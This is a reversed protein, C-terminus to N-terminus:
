SHKRNLPPIELHDYFYKNLLQSEAIEPKPHASFYIKIPGYTKIIHEYRLWNENSGEVAAYQKHRQKLTQNTKGIYIIESAGKLRCIEKSTAWCYVINQINVAPDNSFVESFQNVFEASNTANLEGQLPRFSLDNMRLLDNITM